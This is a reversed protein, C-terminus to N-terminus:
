SGLSGGADDNARLTTILDSKSGTPDIGRLEAMEILQHKYFSSYDVAAAKEENKPETLTYAAEFEEPSEFWYVPQSGEVQPPDHSVMFHGPPAEHHVGKNDTFTGGHGDLQCALVDAELRYKKMEM